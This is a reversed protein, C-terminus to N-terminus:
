MGEAAFFTKVNGSNLNSLNSAVSAKLEGTGFTGWRQSSGNTVEYVLLGESLSMSQTWSVVDPQDVQEDIDAHVSGVPSEGNWVHLHLGGKAYIPHSTHNVEFTMYAGEDGEIPAMAFTVLPSSESEDISLINM